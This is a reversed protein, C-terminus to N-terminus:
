LYNVFMKSCSGHLIHLIHLIHVGPQNRLLANWRVRVMVDRIDTNRGCNKTTSLTSRLGGGGISASTGPLLRSLPAVSAVASLLFALCFLLFSVFFSIM